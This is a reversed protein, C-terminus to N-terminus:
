WQKKLTFLHVTDPIKGIKDPAFSVTQLVSPSLSSPYSCYDLPRYPTLSIQNGRSLIAKLCHIRCTSQFSYVIRIFTHPILGGRAWGRGEVYPLSPPPPIIELGRGINNRQKNVIINIISNNHSPLLQIFYGINLQQNGQM